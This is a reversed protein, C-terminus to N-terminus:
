CQWHKAVPGREQHFLPLLKLTSIQDLVIKGLLNSEEEKAQRHRDLDQLNKDQVTSYTKFFSGQLGLTWKGAVECASLSAGYSVADHHGDVRPLTLAWRWQLAEGCAVIGASIAMLDDCADM